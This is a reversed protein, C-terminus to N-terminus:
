SSELPLFISFVTKGPQSHCEILGGHAQVLSQAISLGLGNGEPRSTVMPYFVQEALQPEIGPGNDRIDIRLM